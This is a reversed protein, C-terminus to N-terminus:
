YYKEYDIFRNKMTTLARIYGEAEISNITLNGETYDKKIEQWNNIEVELEEVMSKWLREYKTNSEAVKSVESDILEQLKKTLEEM